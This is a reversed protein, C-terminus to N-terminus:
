GNRGGRSSATQKSASRSRSGTGSSKKAPKSGGRSPSRSGRGGAGQSKQPKPQEEEEEEDEDEAGSDEADTDEADTDEADTDEADTDEADTDEADTDEARPEDSENEDQVDEEPEDKLSAGGLAGDLAGKRGDQIRETLRGLQSSAASMAAARGAGMLQERLRDYEPVGQLAGLGEKLVGSSTLKRGALLSGLTLALKLKKSRGLLYGGGVALAVRASTQM